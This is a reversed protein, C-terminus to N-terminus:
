GGIETRGELITYFLLKQRPKKKMKFFLYTHIESLMKNDVIIQVLNAVNKTYDPIICYRMMSADQCILSEDKICTEGIPFIILQPLVRDMM